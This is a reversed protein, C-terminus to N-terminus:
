LACLGLYGHCPAVPFHPCQVHCQLKNKVLLLKLAARTRPEPPNLDAKKAGVIKKFSHQKKNTKLFGIEVPSLVALRLIEGPPGAHAPITILGNSAIVALAQDCYYACEPSPPVQLPKWFHVEAAPGLNIPGSPWVMNKVQVGRMPPTSVIFAGAPTQEYKAAQAFSQL